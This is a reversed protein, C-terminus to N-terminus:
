NAKENTKEVVLKQRGELCKYPDMGSLDLNMSGLTCNTVTLTAIIEKADKASTGCPFAEGLTQNLKFRIIYKIM